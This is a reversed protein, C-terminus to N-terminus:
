RSMQNKLHDFLASYDNMANPSLPFNGYWAYEYLRSLQRFPQRYETENLETYYDHNTKDNRYQIRGSQQLLQLLWMYRYRVALRTENGAIAQQLLTEWDTGAIDELDQGQDPPPGFSKKNKGFLLSGKIFALRYIIYVIIGLVLLWMLLTGAPGALFRFLAYFAKELDGPKKDRRPAAIERDNKYSFAKDSKLQQWQEPTPEPATQAATHFVAIVLLCCIFLYFQKLPRNSM